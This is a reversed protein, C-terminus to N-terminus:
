GFADDKPHVVEYCGGHDQRLFSFRHQPKTDSFSSQITLAPASLPSRGQFALLRMGVIMAFELIRWKQAMGVDIVVILRDIAALCFHPLSHGADRDVFALVLVSAARGLGAGALLLQVNVLLLPRRSDESCNM